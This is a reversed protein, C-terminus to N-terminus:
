LRALPLLPRFGLPCFSAPTKDSPQFGAVTWLSARQLKEKKVKVVVVVDAVAIEIMVM